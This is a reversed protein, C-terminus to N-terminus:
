IITNISLLEMKNYTDVCSTQHIIDNLQCFALMPGVVFELANDSRVQKIHHGFHTKVM